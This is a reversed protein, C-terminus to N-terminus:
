TRSLLADLYEFAADSEIQALWFLAQERIKQRRDRDELIGTLTLLAIDARHKSIAAMADESIRREGDALDVQQLLWAASSSADVAGISNIPNKTSVPCNSDLARIRTTKGDTIRVYINIHSSDLECDGQSVTHGGGGDLDCGQIALNGGNISYCCNHAGDQSAEIKWVHWGDTSPAVFDVANSDAWAAILLCFALARAVLDVSRM